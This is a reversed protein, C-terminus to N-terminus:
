LHHMKETRYNDGHTRSRPRAVRAALGPRGVPESAPAFQELRRMRLYQQRELAVTIDKPRLSHSLIFLCIYFLGM